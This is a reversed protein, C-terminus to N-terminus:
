EYVPRSTICRVLCGSGINLLIDGGIIAHACTRINRVRCTVVIIDFTLCYLRSQASSSRKKGLPHASPWHFWGKSRYDRHFTPNRCQLVAFCLTFDPAKRTNGHGNRQKLKFVRSFPKCVSWTRKECFYIGSRSTAARYIVNNDSKGCRSSRKQLRSLKTSCNIAQKLFPLSDSPFNAATTADNNKTCNPSDFSSRKWDNRSASKGIRRSSM